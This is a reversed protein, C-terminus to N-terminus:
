IHCVIATLAQVFSRVQPDQEADIVVGKADMVRYVPIGDYLDPQVFELKETWSSRSGPFSPRDTAESTSSTSKWRQCVMIFYPSILICSFLTARNQYYSILTRMFSSLLLDILIHILIQIAHTLTVLM